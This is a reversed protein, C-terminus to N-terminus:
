SGGTVRSTLANSHGASIDPPAHRGAKNAKATKMLDRSLSAAPDKWRAVREKIEEGIEVQRQLLALVKEKVTAEFNGRVSNAMLALQRHYAHVGLRMADDAARKEFATRFGEGLIMGQM